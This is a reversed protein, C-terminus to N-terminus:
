VDPTARRLTFRRAALHKGKTNMDSIRDVAELMEQRSKLHGFIENNGVETQRIPAPFLKRDSFGLHGAQHRKAVFEARFLGKGARTNGTAQM